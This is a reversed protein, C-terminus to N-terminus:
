GVAQGVGVLVAGFVGVWFWDGQEFVTVCGFLVLGLGGATLGFALRRAHTIRLFYTSNLLVTLSSLLILGLAIFAMLDKYDFHAAMDQSGTLVLVYCSNNILGLLGIIAKTYVM